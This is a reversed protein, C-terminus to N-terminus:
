VLKRVTEGPKRELKCINPNNLPISFTRKAETIIQGLFFRETPNITVIRDCFYSMCEAECDFSVVMLSPADKGNARLAHFENPKHFIMEGARLCIEKKDATVFIEGADVCLLEWFDHYEGTYVFDKSYEFYHISYIRTIVFNEVLSISEYQKM